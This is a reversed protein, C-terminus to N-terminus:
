RTSCGLKDFNGVIKEEQTEDKVESSIYVIDLCKRSSYQAITWCQNETDIIKSSLLNNVYKTICM